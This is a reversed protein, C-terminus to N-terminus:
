QKPKKKYPGGPGRKKSVKPVTSASPIFQFKNLDDPSFTESNEQNM